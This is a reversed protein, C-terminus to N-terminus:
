GEYYTIGVRALDDEVDSASEEPVSITISNRTRATEVLGYAFANQKVWSELDHFNDVDQWQFDDVIQPKMRREFRDYVYTLRGGVATKFKEDYNDYWRIEKRIPVRVRQTKVRLVMEVSGRNAM